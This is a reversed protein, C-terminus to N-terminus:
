EVTPTGRGLIRRLMGEVAAMQISPGTLTLVHPSDLTQPEGPIAM